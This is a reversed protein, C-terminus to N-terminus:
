LGKIIIIIAGALMLVAGLLRLRIHSEKFIVGGYLVSILISFRKISIMYAANIMSLILGLM